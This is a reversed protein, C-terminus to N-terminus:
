AMSEVSKQVGAQFAATISAAAVSPVKARENQEALVQCTEQGVQDFNEQAVPDNTMRNRLDTTTSAVNACVSAAANISSELGRDSADRSADSSDKRTDRVQDWVQSSLAADGGGGGGGTNDGGTDGGGEISM